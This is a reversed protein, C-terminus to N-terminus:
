NSLTVTIKKEINRTFTGRKTKGEKTTTIGDIIEGDDITDNELSFFLTMSNTGFTVEVRATVKGTDSKKTREYAITLANAEDTKTYKVNGKATVNGRDDVVIVENGKGAQLVPQGAVIKYELTSVADDKDTKKVTFLAGDDVMDKTPDYNVASLNVVLSKIYGYKEYDTGTYRAKMEGTAGVVKYNMGHAFNTTTTQMPLTLSFSDIILGENAWNAAIDLQLQNKDFVLANTGKSEGFSGKYLDDSYEAVIGNVKEAPKYIRISDKLTYKGTMGTFKLSGTSTKGGEKLSVEVEFPSTFTLKTTETGVKYRNEGFEYRNEGDEFDLYSYNSVFVPSGLEQMAYESITSLGSKITIKLTSKLTGAKDYEKLELTAGAGVTASVLINDTVRADVGTFKAISQVYETKDLTDTTQNWTYDTAINTVELVKTAATYTAVQKKNYNEMDFGMGFGGNVNGGTPLAATLLSMMKNPSLFTNNGMGPVFTPAESARVDARMAKTLDVTAITEDVAKTVQVTTSSIDDTTKKSVVTPISDDVAPYTPISGGGGGGGGCGVLFSLSVVLAVFTFIVRLKM